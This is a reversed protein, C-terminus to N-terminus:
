GDGSQGDGAPRRLDAPDGAPGGGPAGGNAAGVARRILQVGDADVCVNRYVPRDIIRPVERTIERVITERVVEAEALEADRDQAVAIQRDRLKNAAAQAVAHDRECKAKGVGQGYFFAGLIAAFAAIALGLKLYLGM